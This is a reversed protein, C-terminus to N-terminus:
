HLKFKTIECIKIQAIEHHTSSFNASNSLFFFYFFRDTWRRLHSQPIIWLQNRAKTPQFKESIVDFNREIKIAIESSVNIGSLMMLSKITSTVTVAKNHFRLFILHNSMIKVGSVWSKTVCYNLIRVQITCCM